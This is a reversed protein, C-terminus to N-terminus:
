YNTIVLEKVIKQSKNVKNKQYYQKFYERIKDKNKEKYKKVAKLHNFKKIYEEGLGNQLRVCGM